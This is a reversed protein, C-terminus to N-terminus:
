LNSDSSAGLRLSLKQAVQGCSSCNHHLTDSAIQLHWQCYTVKSFVTNSIVSEKEPIQTVSKAAWSPTTAPSTGSAASSTTSSSAALELPYSLRPFFNLDQFRVESSYVFCLWPFIYDQSAPLTLNLWIVHKLENGNLICLAKSLKFFLFHMFKKTSKQFLQKRIFTNSQM